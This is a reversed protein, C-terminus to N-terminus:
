INEYFKIFENIHNEHKYKEMFRQLKTLEEKYEISSLNLIRDIKEKIQSSSKAEFIYKKNYGLVEPIAGRNSGIVLTGCAVAEILVRGFAEEWESPLILIKSDRIKKYVEEQSIWGTVSIKKKEAEKRLEGDGVLLLKVKKTLGEYYDLLTLIGKNKSLDGVYIVDNNKEFYHNKKPLMDITNSIVKVNKFKFGNKIHLNIMYESPSHIYDVYKEVKKIYYKRHYYDVINKMINDSKSVGTYILQSDRLTHIVVGNKNKVCEWWLEPILGHTGSTHIIVEPYKEFNLAEIIRKKYIKKFFYSFIKDIKFLISKYNKNEIKKLYISKMKGFNIRNIKVNNIIEKKNEYGFTIVDFEGNLGENLIKNSLEAGGGIFPYYLSTIFYKKM